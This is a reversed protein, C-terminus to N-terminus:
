GTTKGGKYLNLRREAWSKVAEMDEHLFEMPFNEVVRIHLKASIAGKCASCWFGFGENLAELAHRNDGTVDCYPPLGKDYDVEADKSLEPM